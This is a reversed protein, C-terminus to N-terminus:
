RRCTRGIWSCLYEDKATLPNFYYKTRARLKDLLSTWKQYTKIRTIREEKSGSVSLGLDSLWKSAEEKTTIM